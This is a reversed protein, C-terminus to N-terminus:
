QIAQGQAACGQFSSIFTLVLESHKGPRSDLLPMPSTWARFDASTSFLVRQGPADEDQHGNSWIASFRGNFSSLRPHHFYTWESVPQYLWTREVSLHNATAANYGPNSPLNKLM